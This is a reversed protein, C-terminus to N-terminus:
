IETGQLHKWEGIRRKSVGSHFPVQLAPIHWGTCQKAVNPNGRFLESGKKGRLYQGEGVCNYGGKKRLVM